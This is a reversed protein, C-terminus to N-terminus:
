LLVEDQSMTTMDLVVVPKDQTIYFFLALSLLIGLSATASFLFLSTKSKFINKM